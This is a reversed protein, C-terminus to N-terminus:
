ITGDEQARGLPYAACPNDLSLNQLRAKAQVCDLKMQHVLEEVSNFKQDPRILDIFEMLLTRGYLDESMDFLHVELFTQTTEFTPRDGFYGAGAWAKSNKVGGDRVRVAFIGRIPEAGDELIINATPFGIARGRQDGRVVEGMVTWYYGLEKAAAIMHGRRLASRISSSSFPSHSDGEDAVQDVITVDFGLQQGQERLIAPNGRRGKGFHFDYGTVVHAVKMKGVLYQQIFADPELLSFVKDFTLSLVFSAGLVAALRAKLPLPTLRFVPEGPKFFSRPHPEFTVIGWPKGSREAQDRAVALLEQHGRHLGDFNGIAVVAHLFERPIPEHARLLRM